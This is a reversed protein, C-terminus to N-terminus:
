RKKRHKRAKRVKHTSACDTVAIPTSTHIQMGNQAIFATPMLMGRRRRKVKVTVFRSRGKIRARVRKSTTVTYTAKCLNANAALASNPGEPLKLEFSGVPVDPVQRFTSTTIGANSIFTEGRLDVTVGYGQLVIILEPFKKSGYSVFYAPGELPVPLVPTIAKAFGVRAGSPCAAPNAEFTAALCAKQLTTLRSPLKKPLAVKVKAINAQSGFPAKPYVLKVNLGAGNKRSTKGPTSAKFQPKFGLTACNAAQFRSAVAARAGEGSGISGTVSMPECNTPNFMFGERDITVNITRLDLPIGQLITPLPDSKVTIRATRPDVSIASRVVVDGLNYPGAIAPVVISLGFPAGRYPGTLYVSGGLYFPSPGPGAGTTTHGILSAAPCTGAQAQPEGCLPVSSIIGALGPPTTVSIGGFEQDADTRSLTMTFPSFGGAQPNTTGAAFSPAFPRPLPCPAGAGDLSTTFSPSSLSVTADAFSTLQASAAMTECQASNALAANAGGYLKLTMDTFPLQPNEDFTATLQGTVPDAAVSGALKVVVGSGQAVVFVRYPNGPLPQGVYVGGSMTHSLLPTEVTVEGVKSAKPCSPAVDTGLGIQSDQCALLGNAASPSIHMGLPLTVSADKLRETARGNPDENQPIHIQTVLGTPEGATTVTPQAEISPEFALADCGTLAPLSASTTKWNPDSLDPAGEATLRGPWQWSDMAIKVEPQTGECAVPNTLFPQLSHGKLEFSGLISLRESDHVSAAPVGWIHVSVGLLPAIPDNQSPIDPVTLRLAYHNSADVSAYSIPTAVSFATFGAEAPHDPSAVVNELPTPVAQIENPYALYLTVLGIQSDPPCRNGSELVVIREPCASVATPNGVLGPPLEVVTDKVEGSAQETNEPDRKLVYAFEVDPHGGALTADPGTTAATFSELVMTPLPAAAAVSPLLLTAALACGVGCILRMRKMGSTRRM